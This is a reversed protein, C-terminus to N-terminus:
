AATERLARNVANRVVLDKDAAARELVERAEPTRIRGLAIAACARLEPSTKMRLLGRPALMGELYKLGSAGAIAGYAEFFAMKESLEMARVAKGQVVAEVRRLASKYGRAGAARVAAMRVARDADEIARDIHALAGPSGIATLSQVAALRIAADRHSLADGLGAVAPQLQLRGALGIVGLLAESDPTRLLRLVEGGNAGAIRDAAAELIQRVPESAMRPAWIVLTELAAPRLEGLLESVDADGPRIAAEDLSQILQRVIAPQSLQLEFSQLRDRQATGLAACRDRLLRLERLVAAVTRFEGANLLNPFLQDLITLIEDRVEATAQQEFLDYLATLASERVDRSYEAAVERVVYNIEAEDLFYLTSDFDDLDVVSSNRPPAEEAVQQQRVEPAVKEAAQGQREPPATDGYAEAFQYSIWQFEEAWLLTLLDDSADAALFRARNVVDLFRIIEQEEVGPRLTLVRMGDKYLAWAFSDSKSLQQYVVEGEWHLDTEVVQLELTDTAAWVPAFAARVQQAARQYIPNNPLYMQFARMAKVLSTFLESIQSTPLVVGDSTAAATTM